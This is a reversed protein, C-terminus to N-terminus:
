YEGLNWVSGADDQAEFALEAETLRGANFDRDWLVLARVGDIVKTLNTVTLIVQHPVRRNGSNSRGNLIFQTGPTFPLWPNDIRTPHSFHDDDFAPARGCAAAPLAAAAAAEAQTCLLLAAALVRLAVWLRHRLSFMAPEEDCRERR